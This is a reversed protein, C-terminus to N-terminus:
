FRMSAGPATSTTAAATAAAVPAATSSAPSTTSRKANSEGIPLGAARKAHWASKMKSAESKSQGWWNMIKIGAEKRFAEEGKEHLETITKPANPTSVSM